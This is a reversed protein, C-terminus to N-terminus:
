GEVLVPPREQVPSKSGVVRNGQCRMSSNRPWHWEDLIRALIREKGELEIQPSMVM